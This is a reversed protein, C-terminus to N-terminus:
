IVITKLTSLNNKVNADGNGLTVLINVLTILIPELEVGLALPNLLSSLETNQSCGSATTGAFASNVFNVADVVAIFETTGHGGSAFTTFKVSAGNKCWTDRLTTANAYPIIEDQSAHYLFVPATPTEKKNLGMINQDLIPKVTPDYLLGRGLTQYSTSLVSAYPANILDEVACNSNAYDLKSKGLPTVVSDLVPKLQAGYTSPKLLGDIAAPLFGSFLTGDIYTTTGTLNAPTGGAVWGKVTLEPAYSSQLSAAWGTAIAGGSYGVGVIMPKSTSLGLKSKFNAVARMSDLVGMGELRGAAFAADPGEYDPSSVIYGLTLYTQLVLM